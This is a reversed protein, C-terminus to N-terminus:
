LNINHKEDNRKLRLYILLFLCLIGIGIAYYTANSSSKTVEATSLIFGAWYFPHRGAGQSKSLFALKAQRLAVAPDRNKNLSGYFHKMIQATSQDNVTWLSNIVNRTGNLMFSRALSLSGEGYKLEGVGTECASLVALALRSPQSAIETGSIYTGHNDLQLAGHLTDTRAHGAFHFVDTNINYLNSVHSDTNQIIETKPFISQIASIEKEAFNLNLLNTRQMSTSQTDMRYEPSLCRIKNFSNGTRRPYVLQSLRHDVTHSEILYDNKPDVLADFPILSLLDEGIISFREPLNGLPLLLTDYLERAITRYQQDSSRKDLAETLQRVHNFLRSKQSLKLIRYDGNFNDVSFVSNRAVIYHVFDSNLYEDRSEHSSLTRHNQESLSLILKTQSSKNEYLEKKYKAIQQENFVYTDWDSQSLRDLAIRTRLGEDFVLSQSQQLYNRIEQDNLIAGTNNLEFLVNFIENVDNKHYHAAIYKSADTDYSRLILNNVDLSRTFAMRASDLDAKVHEKKYRNMYMNGLLSYLDMFITESGLFSDAFFIDEIKPDLNKAALLITVRLSDYQHSSLFADGLSLLTKAKERRNGSESIRDYLAYSQHLLQVAEQLRKQKLAVKGKLMLFTAYPNETSEQNISYYTISDLQYQASDLKDQIILLSALNLRNIAEARLRHLQVAKKIAKKYYLAAQNYAFQSQYLIGINGWLRYVRKDRQLMMADETLEYYYMARTIDGLQNYIIALPNEVYWVWDDRIIDDDPIAKHALLYYKKARLNNNLHKVYFRGHWAYAKRLNKKDSFSYNKLSDIHRDFHPITDTLNLNVFTDRQYKIAVTFQEGSHLQSSFTDLSGIDPAQAQIFYGYPTAILLSIIFLLLLQDTLSFLVTKRQAHM